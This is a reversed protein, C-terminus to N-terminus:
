RWQIKNEMMNEATSEKEEEGHIPVLLEGGGNSFATHIRGSGGQGNRRTARGSTKMRSFLTCTYNM